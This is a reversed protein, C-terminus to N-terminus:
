KFLDGVRLFLVVMATSLLYRVESSVASVFDCETWGGQGSARLSGGLEGKGEDAPQETAGCKDDKAMGIGYGGVDGDRKDNPGLNPPCAFPVVETVQVGLSEEDRRSDAAFPADIVEAGAGRDGGGSSGGRTATTGVLINEPPPPPTRSACVFPPGGM